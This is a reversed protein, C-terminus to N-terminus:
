SRPRRRLKATPTPSAIGDAVTPTSIATPTAGTRGDAYSMKKEGM